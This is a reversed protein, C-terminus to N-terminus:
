RARGVSRRWLPQARYPRGVRWDQGGLTRAIRLVLARRVARELNAPPDSWDIERVVPLDGPDLYIVRSGRFYPLEGRDLYPRLSTAPLGAAREVRHASWGWRQWTHIGLDYLRRHVADPSRRLDAALEKRTLIGAGERLYWDELDSWSEWGRDQQLGAAEWAERFSPFWRLVAYSSPYRNGFGSRRAGRFRVLEHYADTSTPTQGFDLWVRRLGAVVRPKTWWCARGTTTRPAPSAADYYLFPPEVAMLPRPAPAQQVPACRSDRDPPAAPERELLTWTPM